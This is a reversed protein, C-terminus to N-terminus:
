PRASELSERRYATIKYGTSANERGGKVCEEVNERCDRFAEGGWDKRMKGFADSSFGLLLALIESFVGGLAFIDVAKTREGRETCEPALYHQTGAIPLGTSRSSGRDSFDVALGFDTLLIRPVSEGKKEKEHSEDIIVLINAPKIDKHKIDSRHAYTLAAALCGFWKYIQRASFRKRDEAKSALYQKLNCDAVPLIYLNFTDSPGDDKTAFALTAIHHHSLKQLIDMERKHVAGFSGKGLPGLKQFQAAPAAQVAVWQAAQEAVEKIQSYEKAKATFCDKSKDLSKQFKKRPPKKESKILRIMEIHSDIYQSYIAQLPVQLAPFGALSGSCASIVPILHNLAVICDVLDRLELPDDPVTFGLVIVAFSVNWVFALVDESVQEGPRAVAVAFKEIHNDYELQLRNLQRPTDRENQDGAAKWLERVFDARSTLSPISLDDCEQLYEEKKRKLLEAWNEGIPLSM